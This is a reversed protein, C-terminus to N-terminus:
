GNTKPTKQLHGIAKNQMLAAAPLLKTLKLFLMDTCAWVVSLPPPWGLSLSCQEDTRRERREVGYKGRLELPNNTVITEANSSKM